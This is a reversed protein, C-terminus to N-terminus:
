ESRRATACSQARQRRHSTSVNYRPPKLGRTGIATRLHLFCHPLLKTRANSLNGDHTRKCTSRDDPHLRRIFWRVQSAHPGSVVLGPLRGSSTSRPWIQGKRFLCFRFNRRVSGEDLRCAVCGSTKTKPGPHWAGHQSGTTIWHFDVLTRFLEDDHVFRVTFDAADIQTAPDHWLGVAQRATVAM